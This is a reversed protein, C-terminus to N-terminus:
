STTSDVHDSWALIGGSLNILEGKFGGQKLAEIAQMSRYGGKCYVVTPCDSAIENIREVVEGLPILKSNSIKSIAAEYDERVDLIQLNEGRDIRRKLELASIEQKDGLVPQDTMKCFAEYDILNKITPNTSCIPCLPDKSLKLEKFRLSLADYSLLRNVLLEGQGLIWKITETAQIVGILGPLVGLVGGEACSPVANAPPPQPFLCRYCAGKEGWFVSAQGEFRFVSGYVNPKQLLVCADNVLYRTPFNDTGDVVIDYKGIIELANASTLRTEHTEINIYPNITLLRAKASAIKSHGVDDSGFIIQRQLNTVDVNDFDVLGLTGVGAAALYMGAPSGLGGTGVLLVRANKLKLQGNYGFEPLILHRNYRVVEEPTLNGSPTPNKM